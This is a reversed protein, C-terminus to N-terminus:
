RCMQFIFIKPKNVLARCHQNGFQSLIWSEEVYEGDTGKMRTQKYGDANGHSMFVFFGLDCCYLDKDKAHEMVVSKIEAAKLNEVYKVKIGIQRFLEQLNQGDLDAGRREEDREFIINNIILAIGRNKSRTRYVLENSSDYFRDSPVVKIELPETITNVAIPISIQRELNRFFYLFM